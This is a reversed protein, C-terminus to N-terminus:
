SNVVWKSYMTTPIAVGFSQRISESLILLGESPLFFMKDVTIALSPIGTYGSIWNILWGGIFDWTIKGDFLCKKAESTKKPTNLQHKCLNYRRNM